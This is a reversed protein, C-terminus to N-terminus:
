ELQENACVHFQSELVLHIHSSGFSKQGLLVVQLGGVGAVHLCLEM